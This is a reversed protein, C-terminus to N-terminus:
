PCPTGPNEEEFDGCFATATAGIDPTPTPPLEVWIYDEGCGETLADIDIEFPGQFNNNEDLWGETVSSLQFIAQSDSEFECEGDVCIADFKGNEDDYGVYIISGALRVKNESPNVVTFWTELPLKSVIVLQGQILLIEHGLTGTELDSLFSIEIETEAVLYIESGDPLRIYSLGVKCLPGYTSIPIEETTPIPTNKITKATSTETTQKKPSCSSVLVVVALTILFFIKYSGIKRVM